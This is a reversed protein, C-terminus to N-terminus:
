EAPSTRHLPLTVAFTAGLGPRGDATITGGHREAIKRCIALGIGTGEYEDRGHLRQFVQFIRDAYTNDFGIGNDTVTLRCRDGDTEARVTVRPPADPRRFKLANGILNQFLQRMQLRDAEVAPLPGLDVTAGTQELRLELDSLVEAAVEGLPVPAFEVARTGVRSYTLLDQILTRMRAAATQMREIYERGQDGVQDACRAKLRDGFALVKRLPEQLDHSAVYAFQELERNSRHLEATREAVLQELDTALTRYRAESVRLDAQAAELEVQRQTAEELSREARRRLIRQAEGLLGCCLGSLVYLCLGIRDHDFELHFTGTPRLIYYVAGASTLATCVLGPGFGGYWSAFIVALLLIHFPHYFELVPALWLRVLVALVAALVAVLYDRGREAVGWAGMVIGRERYLLALHTM